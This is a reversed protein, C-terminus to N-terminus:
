PMRQRRPQGEIRGFLEIRAFLKMRHAFVHFLRNFNSHRRDGKKACHREGEHCRCFHKTKPASKGTCAACIVTM